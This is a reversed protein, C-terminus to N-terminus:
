TLMSSQAKSLIGYENNAGCNKMVINGGFNFLNKIHSMVDTSLGDSCFIRFTDGPMLIANHILVSM